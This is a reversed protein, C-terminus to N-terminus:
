PSLSDIPNNLHFRPMRKTSSVLSLPLPSLRTPSSSIPIMPYAPRTLTTSPPNKVQSPLGAGLDPTPSFSHNLVDHRSYLEEPPIRQPGDFDVRSPALQLSKDSWNRTRALEEPHLRNATSATAPVTNLRDTSRNTSSSPLAALDLKSPERRIFKMARLANKSVGNMAGPKETLASHKSNVRTGIQEAKQVQDFTSLNFKQRKRPKPSTFAKRKKSAKRADQQIKPSHRRFTSVLKSKLSRDAAQVLLPQAKLPLISPRGRKPAPARSSAGSNRLGTTGKRKGTELEREEDHADDWEGQESTALKQLDLVKKSLGAVLNLKSHLLLRTREMEKGRSLRPTVVAKPLRRPLFDEGLRDKINFFDSCITSFTDDSAADSDEEKGSVVDSENLTILDLSPLEPSEPPPSTRPHPSPSALVHSKSDPPDIVDVLNEEGDSLGTEEADSDFPISVELPQPSHIWNPKPRKQIWTSREMERCREIAGEAWYRLDTDPEMSGLPNDHKEKAIKEAMRASHISCADEACSDKAELLELVLEGVQGSKYIARRRCWSIASEIAWLAYTSPLEQRLKPYITSPLLDVLYTRIQTLLHTMSLYDHSRPLTDSYTTTNSVFADKPSAFLRHPRRQSEFHGQLPQDDADSSDESPEDVRLDHAVDQFEEDMCYALLSKGQTWAFPVKRAPDAALAMLILHDNEGDIQPTADSDFASVTTLDEYASRLEVSFSNLTALIRGANSRAPSGDEPVAAPTDERDNASLSQSLDADSSDPDLEWRDQTGDTFSVVVERAELDWDVRDIVFHWLLAKDAALPNPLAIGEEKLRRKTKLYVSPIRCTAPLKPLPITHTHFTAPVLYDPPPKLTLRM